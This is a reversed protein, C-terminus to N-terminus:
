RTWIIFAGFDLRYGVDFNRGLTSLEIPTSDPTSVTGNGKSFIFICWLVYSSNQEAHVNHTLHDKTNNLLQQGDGIYM